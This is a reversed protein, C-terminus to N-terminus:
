DMKFVSYSVEGYKTGVHSQEIDDIAYVYNVFKVKYRSYASENNLSAEIGVRLRCHLDLRVFVFVSYLM